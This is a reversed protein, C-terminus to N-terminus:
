LLSQLRDPRDTCIADVGLGILRKMDGPDDVTWVGFSLSHQRAAALSDAGACDAACFWGEGGGSKIAQAGVRSRQKTTFWCIIEPAIHKAHVLGRWDFGVLITRAIFDQARLEAIVAEAMAEPKASLSPEELSTKLEVFLRFHDFPRVAAIVQSLSPMHEGDRASLNPHRRAYASHPRPRGVDFSQLEGLTLDPIAPSLRKRTLWKGAPDRCLDPKLRFDHFVVLQEDRTLQVDLEAGDFGAKAASAFAFVTNEPWLGAGGRHAINLTQPM